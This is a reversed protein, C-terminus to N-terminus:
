SESRKTKEPLNLLILATLECLIGFVAFISLGQKLFVLGMLAAAVPEFTAIIAAKSASIIKMSSNYLWYPAVSCCLGFMACMLLSQPKDGAIQVMAQTEGIIVVYMIGLIAAFAFPYLINTFSSYQKLKTSVVINYEAYCFASILGMLLGPVNITFGDAFGSVLACGLLSLVLCCGKLRTFKEKLFVVSFLMVMSPMLYILVAATAMGTWQIAYTYCLNFVFIGVIGNLAMWGLDRKAIKLKRRDTALLFLTVIIPVSCLRVATMQSGSFGTGGIWNIFLGGAGWLTAAALVMLSAISGM